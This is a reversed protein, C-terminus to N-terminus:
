GNQKKWWDITQKIGNELKTWSNFKYKESFFESHIVVKRRDHRSAGRKWDVEEGLNKSILDLIDLISSQRGSGVCYTGPIRMICAQWNAKAVDRVFTYDRTQKGDGYIEFKDGFLAHKIARPILQNEGLPVQRQGYINAYRLITHNKPFMSRVYMEASFKSIGYPTKPLDDFEHDNECWIEQAETVASTSAFVFHKVGAWKAAELLQITGMVNTWADLAPKEISTLLSPQAALHLVVDPKVHDFIALMKARETISEQYLMEMRDIFGDLNEPKGSSFDDIGWIKDKKGKWHELTHSGIFGAIGTCLIKTMPSGKMVSM